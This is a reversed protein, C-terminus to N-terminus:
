QAAEGAVQQGFIRLLQREENEVVRLHDLQDRDIHQEICRQVLARLEGPPIADLEVSPRDGWDKAHNNGKVKTPRTPLQWHKIQEETVAVREVILMEQEFGPLLKPCMRRLGKEISKFIGLGSPDYDTLLYIVAQYASGAQSLQDTIVDVASYLYSESSFGRSVMLPVDYEQTVDYLVGALADKECWIETYIEAEAWLDRRYTQQHREIFDALGTYTKPKRMWRTNDAIWSYPLAGARRMELLLRGVANKCEGETKEVLGRVEAQYFVQRVTMPHDAAVIAYLGARLEAMEAKTRRNRKIPSTRYSAGNAAEALDPLAPASM